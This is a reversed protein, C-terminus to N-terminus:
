FNSGKLHIKEERIEFICRDKKGVFSGKFIPDLLSDINPLLPDHVFFLRPKSAVLRKRIERLSETKM